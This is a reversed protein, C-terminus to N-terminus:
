IITILMFIRHLYYARYHYTDFQLEYTRVVTITKMQILLLSILSNYKEKALKRYSLQWFIMKEQCDTRM